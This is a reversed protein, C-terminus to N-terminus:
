KEDKEEGEYSLIRAIANEVARYAAIQEELYEEGSPELHYYIREQRRGSKVAYETIYQRAVSEPLLLCCKIIVLKGLFFACGCRLSVTM